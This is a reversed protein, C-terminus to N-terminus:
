PWSEAPVPFSSTPKEDITSPYQYSHWYRRCITCSSRSQHSSRPIRTHLEFIRSRSLGQAMRRYAITRSAFNFALLEISQQDAMQLCHYAQSCDLKCFLDKGAMHQSADTLTNVPQNIGIYDYAIRTNKERLDVLVIVSTGETETITLLSCVSRSAVSGGMSSGAVSAFPSGGAPYRSTMPHATSGGRTKLLLDELMSYSALSVELGLARAFQIMQDVSFSTTPHSADLHTPPNMEFCDKPLSKASQSPYYRTREKPAAEQGFMEDTPPIRVMGEEEDGMRAGEFRGDAQRQAFGELASFGGRSEFSEPM